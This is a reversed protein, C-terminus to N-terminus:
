SEVNGTQLLWWDANRVEQQRPQPLAEVVETLARAEVTSIAVLQRCCAGCHAKCSITKGQAQAQRVAIKTAQRTFEQAPPLLEVPRRPGLPVQM